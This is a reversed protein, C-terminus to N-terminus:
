SKLILWLSFCVRGIYPAVKIKLEHLSHTFRFHRGAILICSTQNVICNVVLLIFPGPDNECAARPDGYYHCAAPACCILALMSCSHSPLTRRRSSGAGRALQAAAPGVSEDRRGNTTTTSQISDVGFPPRTAAAAERMNEGGGWQYLCGLMHRELWGRGEREKEREERVCCCCFRETERFSFCFPSFRM